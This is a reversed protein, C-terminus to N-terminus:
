SRKRKKPINLNQKRAKMRLWEPQPVWSATLWNTAQVSKSEKVRELYVAEEQLLAQDQVETM